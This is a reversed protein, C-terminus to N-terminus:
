ALWNEVVLLKKEFPFTVSTAPLPKPASEKEDVKCSVVNVRQVYGGAALSFRCSSHPPTLLSYFFHHM